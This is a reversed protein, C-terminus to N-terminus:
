GSLGRRKQELAQIDAELTKIESKTQAIFKDKEPFDPSNELGRLTEKKQFLEDRKQKTKEELVKKVAERKDSATRTEQEKQEVESLKPPQKVVKSLHEFAAGFAAEPGEKKVKNLFKGVASLLEEPPIDLDFGPESKRGEMLGHLPDLKKIHEDIYQLEVAQDETAEKRTFVSFLFRKRARLREALEKAKKNKKASIEARASFGPSADRLKKFVSEFRTYLIFCGCKYCYSQKSETLQSSCEPCLLKDDTNAM